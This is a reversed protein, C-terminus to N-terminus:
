GGRSVTADPLGAVVGETGPAVKVAVLPVADRPIREPAAPLESDPFPRGSFASTLGCDHAVTAALQLTIQTKAIAKKRGDGFRPQVTKPTM